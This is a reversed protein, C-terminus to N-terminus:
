FCAVVGLPKKNIKLHSNQPNLKPGWAQTPVVRGVLRYEARLYDGNILFWVKLDM